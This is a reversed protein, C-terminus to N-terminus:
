GKNHLWEIQNTTDKMQQQFLQYRKKIDILAHPTKQSEVKLKRTSKKFLVHVAGWYHQNFQIDLM